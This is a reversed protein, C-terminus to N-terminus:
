RLARVRGGSRSFPTLEPFTGAEADCYCTQGDFFSLITNNLCVAQSLNEIGFATDSGSTAGDLLTNGSIVIDRNDFGSLVASAFTGARLGSVFNGTIAVNSSQSLIIGGAEGLSSTGTIKNNEIVSNSLIGLIGVAAFDSAPAALKSRFKRMMPARLSKKALTQNLLANATNTIQNDRIVLSSGVAVIASFLNSDLSMREVRHGFSPGGPDGLLMIGIAFGRVSGNQIIVNKRELAAIGIAATQNGAGLNGLKFGGMDITVNNVAVLIAPGDALNTQINNKLCHVGQVNIVTPVSVIEICNTTQALAPAATLWAVAALAFVLTKM